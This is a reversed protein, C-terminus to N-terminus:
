RIDAALVKRVHPRARHDKKVADPSKVGSVRAKDEKDGDRAVIQLAERRITASDGQGFSLAM